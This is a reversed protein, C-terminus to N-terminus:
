NAFSFRSALKALKLVKYIDVKVESLVVKIGKQEASEIFKKLVELEGSAVRGVSSFDLVVEGEGVHLKDAAARLQEQIHNEELKLWVAITEM